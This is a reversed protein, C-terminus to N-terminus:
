SASTVLRELALKNHIILISGKLEAMDNKKFESLTRTVSERTTGLLQSIDEHTLTLTARVAGHTVEGGIASELLFRAVRGSVTESLGISRILDYADQCDRGLHEAARLCAASHEKLFRRFDEQGVFNLQCPRMTEVTFEHPKGSVSAHLGLIEGARAIRVILTKGQRSTTSLKAQGQCLMFIGRPAQGEVFIVAHEPFVAAHTIQNFAALSEQPLSCFFNQSRLHCTLCSEVCRMGYPSNM